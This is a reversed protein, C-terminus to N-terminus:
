TELQDLTIQVEDFLKDFQKGVNLAFTQYNLLLVSVILGTPSVIHQNHGEVQNFFFSHM